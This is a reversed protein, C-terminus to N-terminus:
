RRGVEETYLALARRSTRWENKIMVAPLENQRARLSLYKASYPGEAEYTALPKLEDMETGVYSLFNLLSSGM